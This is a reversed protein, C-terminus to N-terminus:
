SRGTLSTTTFLTTISRTYLETEGPKGDDFSGTPDVIDGLIKGKWAYIRALMRSAEPSLDPPNRRNAKRFSNDPNAQAADGYHGERGIRDKVLEWAEPVRVHSHVDIVVARRGNIIVPAHKSGTAPRAVGQPAGDAFGFASDACCCGTFVIGATAGSINRLFERRTPM